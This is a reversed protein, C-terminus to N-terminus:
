IKYEEIRRLFAEKKDRALLVEKENRMVISGGDARSYKIVHKMNILFSRHCRFFDPHQELVAEFDKMMKSILLPPQNFLHLRTYAGEAELLLLDDVNVFLLGDAVPVALRQLNNAQLNQQLAAINEGTTGSTTIRKIAKEVAQQLKQIRIPKLLYDVASVEFAQLAYDAYATTFIIEINSTYVITSPDSSLREGRLTSYNTPYQAVVQDLVPRVSALAGSRNQAHASFIVFLLWTNVLYKM